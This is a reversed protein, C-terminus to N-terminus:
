EEHEILDLLEKMQTKFSKYSTTYRTKNVGDDFIIFNEVFNLEIGCVNRDIFHLYEEQMVVLVHTSIDLKHLNERIYGILAMIKRQADQRVHNFILANENIQYGYMRAVVTEETLLQIVEDTNNGNFMSSTSLNDLWINAQHFIQRATQNNM